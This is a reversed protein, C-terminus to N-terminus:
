TFTSAPSAAQDFAFAMEVHGNVGQERLIAVRPRNEVPVLSPKCDGLYDSGPDNTLDYSLRNGGKENSTPMSQLATLANDRRSQMRFSTESWAQQLAGRSSSFIAQSNSIFVVNKKMRRPCSEGLSHLLNGPVGAQVFVASVAKIDRQRIQIVAGLEENFLAPIPNTSSSTSISDVFVEVGARGAFAMELITTLLGGDSRDHYALVFNPHGWGRSPAAEAYSLRPLLGQTRKPGRRQSM